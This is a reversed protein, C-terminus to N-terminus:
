KAAKRFYLLRERELGSVRLLTGDFDASVTASDMANNPM